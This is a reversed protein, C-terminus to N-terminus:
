QYTPCQMRIDETELLKKERVINRSQHIDWHNLINKKVQKANLTIINRFVNLHANNGTDCM